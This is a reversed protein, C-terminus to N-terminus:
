IHQEGQVPFSQSPVSDGEQNWPSMYSMVPSHRQDTDQLSAWQVRGRGMHGPGGDKGIAGQQDGLHPSAAGTDILANAM